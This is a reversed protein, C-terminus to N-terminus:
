EHCKKEGAPAFSKRGFIRDGVGLPMHVYPRDELANHKRV